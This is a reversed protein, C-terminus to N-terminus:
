RCLKTVSDVRGSVTDADVVRFASSWTCRFTMASALEDTSYFAYM